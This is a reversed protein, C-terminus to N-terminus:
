QDAVCRFGVHPMGTDMAGPMKASCRYSACYSDNCLYSGGKQVRKETWPDDPDFSKEAGKPNISVKNPNLSQYYNVNYLDTCWEWVNGAMDYLGFGNPAFSMVPATTLFGDKVTNESPFNGQWYNAKPKGKTIHENGWPYISNPLNGRAAYEWEAETPLRKGAWKCYALADWYCVHVVPHDMILDISSDKGTPHKWDVGNTWCWWQSIDNLNNINQAYVFSMSGPALISDHPKPTDPPLDQKLQEWDVPKEAWTVYGTADVFAKFQQNTVEHIDMWFGDVKVIHQPKERELAFKDQGGMTFTGGEIWIMNKRTSDAQITDNDIAFNKRPKNAYTPYACCDKTKSQPEAEDCAIFLLIIFLSSIIEQMSTLSLLEYFYM